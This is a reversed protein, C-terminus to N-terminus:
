RLALCMGEGLQDSMAFVDSNSQLTEVCARIVEVAKVCVLFAGSSMACVDVLVRLHSWVSIQFLERGGEADRVM